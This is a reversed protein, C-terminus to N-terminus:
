NVQIEKYKSGQSTAYARWIVDGITDSYWSVSGDCRSGNVGGKHRSRVSVYTMHSGHWGGAGDPDPEVTPVPLVGAERYRDDMVTMSGCDGNGNRGYGVSDAVRPNIGNRSTFVQCGLASVNDSFCGGWGECGRLVVNESFMLTKSLGDIVRGLPNKMGFGFPSGMFRITPTASMPNPYMGPPVDTQGHNTNGGNALYNGLVRAWTNSGWENRQMGIDSPCEHVKVEIGGRRAANNRTTSYSVTFDMLSAWADYGLYPAIVSYWGHGDYYGGPGPTQQTYQANNATLAAGPMGGQAAEFQLTAKSIQTINNACSSRRASERAGQIAPLLLAILIGIIAIVVLLEVLTFGSKRKM